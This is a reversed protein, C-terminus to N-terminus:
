PRSERLRAQLSAFYAARAAAAQRLEGSTPEPPQAEPMAPREFSGAHRRGGRDVRPQPTRGIMDALEAPSQGAGSNPNSDFGTGSRLGRLRDTM